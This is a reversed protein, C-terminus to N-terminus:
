VEWRREQGRLSVGLGVLSVGLGGTVSAQRLVAFLPLVRRGRLARWQPGRAHLHTHDRRPCHSHRCTLSISLEAFMQLDGFRLVRRLGLHPRAHTMLTACTSTTCSM